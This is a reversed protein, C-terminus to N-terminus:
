RRGVHLNAVRLWARGDQIGVVVVVNRGAHHILAERAGLLEVDHRFGFLFPAQFTRLYQSGKRIQLGVHQLVRFHAAAFAQGVENLLNVAQHVVVVGTPVLNRVIRAIDAPQHKGVHGGARNGPGKIFEVVGVVANGVQHEIVLVALALGDAM